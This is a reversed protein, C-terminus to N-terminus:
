YDEVMMIKYEHNLDYINIEKEPTDCIYIGHERYYISCPDEVLTNPTLPFDYKDHTAEGNIYLVLMLKM